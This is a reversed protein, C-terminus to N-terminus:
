GGAVYGEKWIIIIDNGNQFAIPEGVVDGFTKTFKQPDGKAVFMVFFVQGKKFVTDIGGIELAFFPLSDPVVKELIKIGIM